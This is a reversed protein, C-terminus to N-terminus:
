DLSGEAGGWQRGFKVEDTLPSLPPFKLFSQTHTHTKLLNNRLRFNKESEDLISQRGSEYILVAKLQGSLNFEITVNAKPRNAKLDM